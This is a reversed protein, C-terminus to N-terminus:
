RVQNGVELCLFRRNGAVPLTAACLYKRLSFALQLVQKEQPLKKRSNNFSPPRQPRTNPKHEKTFHDCHFPRGNKQAINLYSFFFVAM